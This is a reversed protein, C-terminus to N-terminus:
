ISRRLKRSNFGLEGGIERLPRPTVNKYKKKAKRLERLDELDEIAGKVELFENYPLVAFEKKGKKEIIQPHLEM